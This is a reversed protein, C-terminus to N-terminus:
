LHLNTPGREVWRLEMTKKLCTRVDNMRKRRPTRRSPEGFARAIAEEADSPRVPGSRRTRGVISLILGAVCGSLYTAGEESSDTGPFSKALLDMGKQAFLLDPETARGDADARM